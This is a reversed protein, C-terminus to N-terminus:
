PNGKYVAYPYTLHKGVSGATGPELGTRLSMKKITFPFGNCLGKM